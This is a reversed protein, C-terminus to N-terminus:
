VTKLQFMHVPNVPYWDRNLSDLCIDRKMHTGKDYKGYCLISTEEKSFIELFKRANERRFTYCSM